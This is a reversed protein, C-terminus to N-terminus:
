FPLTLRYGQVHEEQAAGQDREEGGRGTRKGYGVEYEGSHLMMLIIM